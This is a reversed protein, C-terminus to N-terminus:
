LEIKQGNEDTNSLIMYQENETYIALYNLNKVIINEKIENKQPVKKSVGKIEQFSKGTPIVDLSFFSFFDGNQAFYNEGWYSM